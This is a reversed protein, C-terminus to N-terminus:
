MQTFTKTPTSSGGGGGGGPQSASGGPQSAVGGPQSVGRAIQGGLSNCDSKHTRADTYQELWYVQTASDGGEGVTLCPFASCCSSLATFMTNEKQLSVFTHIINLGSHFAYHFSSHHPVLFLSLLRVSDTQRQRNSPVDTM